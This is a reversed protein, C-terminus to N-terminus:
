IYVYEKSEFDFKLATLENLYKDIVSDPVDISISIRAYGVGKNLFADTATWTIEPVFTIYSIHEDDTFLGRNMIEPIAFGDDTLNLTIYSGLNYADLVSNADIGIKFRIVDEKYFPIIRRSYSDKKKAINNESYAGYRTRLDYGLVSPASVVPSIDYGNVTVRRYGAYDRADKLESVVNGNIDVDAYLDMVAITHFTEKALSLNYQSDKYLNLSTCFFATLLILVALYLATRTPKRFLQRLHMSLM